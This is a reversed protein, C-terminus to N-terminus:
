NTNKRCGTWRKSKLNIGIVLHMGRLQLVVQEKSGWEKRVTIHMGGPLGPMVQQRYVCLLSAPSPTSGRVWETLLSAVLWRTWRSAWNASGNCIALREQANLYLAAVEADAASTMINKIIKALILIPGNFQTKNANGM